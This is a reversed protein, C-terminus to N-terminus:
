RCGTGIAAAMSEEILYIQRAGASKAADEVAKKWKLSIWLSASSLVRGRILTFSENHVKDIFYKLMKGNSLIPFLGTLWLDSLTSIDPLKEWWRKAEEGVALIEDTRM